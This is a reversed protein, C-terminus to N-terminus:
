RRTKLTECENWLGTGYKKDHGLVKQAMAKAYKPKLTRRTSNTDQDLDQQQNPRTLTWNMHKGWQKWWIRVATVVKERMIETKDELESDIRLVPRTKAYSSWNRREMYWFRDSFFNRIWGDGPGGPNLFKFNTLFHDCSGRKTTVLNKDIKILNELFKVPWTKCKNLSM